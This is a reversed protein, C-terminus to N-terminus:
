YAHAEKQCNPCFFIKRAGIAGQVIKTRCFLCSQGARNHVRLLNKYQGIEEDGPIMPTTTTGGHSLADYLVERISIYLRQLRLSSLEGVKIDPRLRAEFAIEDAYCNGIGTVVQGDMLTNKITGMRLSLRANFVDLTLKRHFPDYGNSLSFHQETERNTLVHMTAALHGIVRLEGGSSFKMNVTVILANEVNKLGPQIVQEHNSDEPTVYQLAGGNQILIVIRKGNSLHLVIEKGRHEVFWVTRGLLEIRLQEATMNVAKTKRVRVETITHGTIREALQRRYYEIESWEPM